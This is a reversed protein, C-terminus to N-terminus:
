ASAVVDPADSSTFADPADKTIVLDPADASIIVVDPKVPSAAVDDGDDDNDDGMYDKVISFLTKHSAEELEEVTLIDKLDLTLNYYDYDHEASVWDFLDPDM